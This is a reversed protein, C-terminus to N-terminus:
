DDYPYLKDSIGNGNDEVERGDYWSYEQQCKSCWCRRGYNQYSKHGKPCMWYRLDM